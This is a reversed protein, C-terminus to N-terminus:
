YPLAYSCVINSLDKPLDPLSEIIRNKMREECKKHMKCTGNGHKRCIEGNRKPYLCMWGFMILFRDFINNDNSFGFLKKKISDVLDKDNKWVDMKKSLYDCIEFCHQLTKEDGVAIRKYTMLYKIVTSFSEYQGNRYIISKFLGARSNMRYIKKGQINKKVVKSTM